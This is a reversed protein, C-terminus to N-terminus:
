PFKDINNKVLEYLRDIIIPKQAIFDKSCKTFEKNDKLENNVAIYNQIDKKAEKQAYILDQIDEAQKLSHALDTLGLKSGLQERFIELNFTLAISYNEWSEYNLWEKVTMFCYIEPQFHKLSDFELWFERKLNYKEEVAYMINDLADEKKEKFKRLIRETLTYREEDISKITLSIDLDNKILHRTAMDTTVGTKSIILVIMEDQFQAKVRELDGDFKELLELGHRLGIPIQQRLIELKHKYIENM